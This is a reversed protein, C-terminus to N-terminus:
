TVAVGLPFRTSGSSFQLYCLGDAEPRVLSGGSADPLEALTRPAILGLGDGAEAFWEALAEPALAARAGASALMRRVHDVYAEKGGFPAPLPLPAPTLGAYQCAFFARVFDGDSEAAMAVRDGPALGAALMRAALARAEEALVPYPLVEVLEGRLSHFNIGTSFGAAYDLAEAVTAFDGLRLAREPATPTPNLTASGITVRRFRDSDRDDHCPARQRTMISLP